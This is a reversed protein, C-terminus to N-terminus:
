LVKQNLVLRKLIILLFILITLKAIFILADKLYLLFLFDRKFGNKGSFDMKNESFNAERHLKERYSNLFDNNTISNFTEITKDGAITKSAKEFNLAGDNIESTNIFLFSMYILAIIVLSKKALFKLVSLM